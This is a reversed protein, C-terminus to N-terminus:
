FLGRDDCSAATARARQRAAARRSGGQSKAWGAGVACVVALVLLAIVVRHLRGQGNGGVLFISVGSAAIGIVIDKLVAHRNDLETPEAPRAAAGSRGDRATFNTGM